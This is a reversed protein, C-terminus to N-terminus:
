VSTHEHQKLTEYSPPNVVCIPEQVEPASPKHSIALTPTSSYTIAMPVTPNSSTAVQQTNGEPTIIVRGSHIADMAAELTARHERRRKIWSRTSRLALRLIWLFTFFNALLGCTQLVQWADVQIMPKEPQDFNVNISAHGKALSPTYPYDAVMKENKMFCQKDKLDVFAFVFQDKAKDSFLTNVIRHVCSSLTFAKECTMVSSARNKFGSNMYETFCPEINTNALHMFADARTKVDDFKESVALSTSILLLATLILKM